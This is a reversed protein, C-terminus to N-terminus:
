IFYAASRHLVREGLWFTKNHALDHLPCAPPQTILILTTKRNFRRHLLPRINHFSERFNTSLELWPLIASSSAGTNSSSSPPQHFHRIEPRAAAAPQQATVCAESSLQSYQQKDGSNMVRWSTVGHWSTVCGGGGPCLIPFACKEFSQCDAAPLLSTEESGMM